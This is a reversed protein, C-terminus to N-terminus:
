VGALATVGVGIVAVFLGLVAIEFSDEFFAWIM